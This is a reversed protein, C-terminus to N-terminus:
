TIAPPGVWRGRRSGRSAPWGTSATSWSAASPWTTSSATPPGPGPDPEVIPLRRGTIDSEALVAVGCDPLIFGASLAATVVVAGPKASAASLTAAHVGGEALVASLRQAGPETAACLTVCFGQGVLESVSTALRAADGTVPAFGRVSLATTSPGEATAPM